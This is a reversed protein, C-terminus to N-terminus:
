CFNFIYTLFDYLLSITNKENKGSLNLECVALRDYPLTHQTCTDNTSWQKRVRGVRGYNTKLRIKPPSQLLDFTRTACLVLEGTPFRNPWCQHAVRANTPRTFNTLKQTARAHTARTLKIIVRHVQTQGGGGGVAIFDTAVIM